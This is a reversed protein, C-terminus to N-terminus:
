IKEGLAKKIKAIYVVDDLTVHGAHHLSAVASVPDIGRQHAIRLGISIEKVMAEDQEANTAHRYSAKSVEHWRAAHFQYAGWSKGNDGIAQYNDSSEVVRFAKLLKIDDAMASTGLMVLLTALGVFMAKCHNM